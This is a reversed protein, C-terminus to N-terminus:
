VKKCIKRVSFIIYTKMRKNRLFRVRLGHSPPRTESLAGPSFNPGKQLNNLIRLKFIKVSTSALIPVPNKKVDSIPMPMPVPM